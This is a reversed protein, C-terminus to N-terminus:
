ALVPEIAPEGRLYLMTEMDIMGFMPLCEEASEEAKAAVEADTLSAWRVMEIWKDQDANYSLNRSVFGPQSRAWRSVADVARLFQERTVGEKLSFVVLDLVGDKGAGTTM